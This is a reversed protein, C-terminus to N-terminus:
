QATAPKPRLVSALGLTALLGIVCYAGLIFLPEATNAGGFYAVSRTADTGAGPPFFAGIARWFPPILARAYAGGASPNGLIVFLLVAVGIGLVGLAVQLAM